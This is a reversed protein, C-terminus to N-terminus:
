DLTPRTMTWVGTVIPERPLYYRAFVNFRCEDNRGGPACAAAGVVMLLVPVFARLKLL